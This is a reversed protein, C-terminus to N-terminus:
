CNNLNYSWPWTWSSIYFVNTRWSIVENNVNFLGIPFKLYRLDLFLRSNPPILNISGIVAPSHNFRDALIIWFINKRSPEPCKGLLYLESPIAGFWPNASWKLEPRPEHFALSLMSLSDSFKWVILFHRFLGLDFFKSKSFVLFKNSCSQLQLLFNNQFQFRRSSFKPVTIRERIPENMEGILHVFKM